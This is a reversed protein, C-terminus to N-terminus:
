EHKIKLYLGLRHARARESMKGQFSAPPVKRTEQPVLVLQNMSMEKGDLQRSGDFVVFSSQSRTM